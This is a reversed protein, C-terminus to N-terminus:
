GRVQRLPPPDQLHETATLDVVKLLKLNTFQNFTRRNDLGTWQAWSMPICLTQVYM